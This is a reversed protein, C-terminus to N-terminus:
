DLHILLASPAVVSAISDTHTHHVFSGKPGVTYHFVKIDESVKIVHIAAEFRVCVSVNSACYVRSIALHNELMKCKVSGFNKSHRMIPGMELCLLLLLRDAKESLVTTLTELTCSLEPNDDGAM